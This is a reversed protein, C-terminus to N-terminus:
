PMADASAALGDNCEAGVCDTSLEDGTAIRAAIVVALDAARCCGVAIKLTWFGVEGSGGSLFRCARRVPAAALSTECDRRVDDATAVVGRVDVVSVLV